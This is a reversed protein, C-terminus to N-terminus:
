TCRPSPATHTPSVPPAGRSLADVRRLLTPLRHAGHMAGIRRAAEELSVGAATVVLPRASGGRTVEVGGAAHFRTKAVGIVPVGVAEHLHRGLGPRGPGLDVYGDVVVCGVRRLRDWVALLCPLERRFFAGPEYPAVEPVAVVHEEVPDADDWAGFVVAAALAGAEGYGVDMAALRM